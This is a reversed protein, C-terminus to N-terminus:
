FTRAMKQAAPEGAGGSGLWEGIRRLAEGALTAQVEQAREALEICVAFDGAALAARAAERLRWAEAALRM